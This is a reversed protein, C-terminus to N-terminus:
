TVEDVNDNILTLRPVWLAGAACNMNHGFICLPFIGM